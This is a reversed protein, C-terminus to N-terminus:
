PYPFRLVSSGDWRNLKAQVLWGENSIDYSIAVVLMADDNNQNIVDGYKIRVWDGVDLLGNHITEAEYEIVQAEYLDGSPQTIEFLLPEFLANISKQRDYLPHQTNISCMTEFGFSKADSDTGVEYEKNVLDSYLGGGLDNVWFDNVTLSDYLQQNGFQVQLGTYCQHRDFYGPWPEPDVGEELHIDSFDLYTPRLAPNYSRRQMQFLSMAKISGDNRAFFEGGVTNSARNMIDWVTQKSDATYYGTNGFGPEQWDAVYDTWVLPDADLHSAAAKFTEYWGQVPIDTDVITEKAKQLIDVASITCSASGDHNITSDLNEVYGLFLRKAQTGDRVLVKIHAGPAVFSGSFPPYDPINRPTQACPSGPPGNSSNMHESWGFEKSNPLFLEMEFTTINGSRFPNNDDTVDKNLTMSVFDCNEPYYYWDVGGLSNAYIFTSPAYCQWHPPTAGTGDWDYQDEYDPALPPRQDASYGIFVQLDNELDIM